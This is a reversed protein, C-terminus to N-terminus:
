MYHNFDESLLRVAGDRLVPCRVAISEEFCCWIRRFPTAQSDLVLLVGHCLQMAKYFSSKRPNQSIDEEVNHQNNAYACVWYASKTLRVLSHKQLCKLFLRIPELWAHSVFWLPLQVEAVEAVLRFGFCCFTASCTNVKLM